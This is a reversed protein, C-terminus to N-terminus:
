VPLAPPRGERTVAALAHRLDAVREASLTGTRGGECVAGRVGLVDPQVMGIQAMSTDTIGGAIALWIGLSAAQSRLAALADAEISSFLNSGQKHSTDLLLGRAGSGACVELWRSLYRADAPRDVYRAVMFHARDARRELHRCAAAIGSAAEDPRESLVAAKFYLAARRQLPAVSSVLAVLAAPSADGLAASLAVGPPVSACISQLTEPSVPALPGNAPEKADIINAGGALAAHAEAADRVSVLLRM